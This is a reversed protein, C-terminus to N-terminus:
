KQSSKQLTLNVSAIAEQWAVKEEYSAIEISGRPEAGFMIILVEKNGRMVEEVWFMAPETM